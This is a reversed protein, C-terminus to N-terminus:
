VPLSPKRRMVSWGKSSWWRQISSPTPRLPVPMASKVGGSCLSRTPVNVPM